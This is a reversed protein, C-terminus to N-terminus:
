NDKKTSSKSTTSAATAKLSTPSAASDNEWFATDDLVDPEGANDLSISYTSDDQAPDTRELSTIIFNGQLYPTELERAMCMVQVKAGTKWIAQLKQYSAESEGDFILGEASLSISLGTVGVDKWLSSTARAATAVPKYTREKTESNYTCTHTTCHGIADGNVYLLMDSGNCFDAM